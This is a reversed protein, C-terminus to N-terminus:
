VRAPPNWALRPGAFNRRMLRLYERGYSTSNFGVRSAAADNMTASFTGSKFSTVGAPIGGTGHGREVLWHAAYLMAGRDRTAESWAAGEEAGEILWLLVTTDEVDAFEPFRARFEEITPM